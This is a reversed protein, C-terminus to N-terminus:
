MLQYKPICYQKKREKDWKWQKFSFIVHSHYRVIQSLVTVLDRATLDKNQRLKATNAKPYTAILQDRLRLITDKSKLAEGRGIVTDTDTVGNFTYANLVQDLLLSKQSGQSGQLKVENAPINQISKCLILRREFPPRHKRLKRYLQIKIMDYRNHYLM